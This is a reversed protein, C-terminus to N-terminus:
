EDAADSTYLLCTYTGPALTGTIPTRSVNPSVLTQSGVAVQNADGDFLQIAGVPEIRESFTLDIATPATKLLEDNAPSNAELVAHAVASAPLGLAAICVAVLVIFRRHFRSM